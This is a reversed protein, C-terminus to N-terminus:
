YEETNEAEIPFDSTHRLAMRGQMDERLATLEAVTKM